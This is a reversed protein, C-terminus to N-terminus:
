LVMHVRGTAKLDLHLAQLQEEGTATLRIRVSVFRGNKSDRVDVLEVDGAPTHQEVINIVLDTFDDGAVGIVKIPYRCPFEIKPAQPTDAM